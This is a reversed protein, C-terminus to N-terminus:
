ARHRGITRVCSQCLSESSSTTRGSYCRRHITLGFAKATKRNIVFEFPTPQEVPLDDPQRGQSRRILSM